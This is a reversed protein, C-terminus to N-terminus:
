GRCSYRLTLVSALGEFVLFLHSYMYIPSVQSVKGPYKLRCSFGSWCKQPSNFAVQTSNSTAMATTLWMAWLLRRLRRPVTAWLYHGKRWWIWLFRLKPLTNLQRSLVRWEGSFFAILAREKKESWCKEPTVDAPSAEMNQHQGDTTSEYPQWTVHGVIWARIPRYGSLRCQEACTAMSQDM